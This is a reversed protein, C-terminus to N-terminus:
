SATAASAPRASSGPSTAAPTSSSSRARRRGIVTYYEGSDFPLGSLVPSRLRDNEDADAATSHVTYHTADDTAHLRLLLSSSSRPTSGPAPPFVADRHLVPVHLTRPPPTANASLSVLLLFIAPLLLNPSAM